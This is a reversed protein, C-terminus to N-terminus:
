KRKRLEKGLSKSNRILLITIILMFGGIILVTYTSALFIEKDCSPSIGTFTGVVAFLIYGMLMGGSLIALRILAKEWYRLNILEDNM